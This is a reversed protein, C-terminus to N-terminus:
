QRSGSQVNVRYIHVRNREAWAGRRRAFLGLPVLFVLLVACGLVFAASELRVGPEEAFLFEAFAGGRPVAGDGACRRQPRVSAPVSATVRAPVASRSRRLSAGEAPYRAAPPGGM